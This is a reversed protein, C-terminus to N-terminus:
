LTAGRYITDIENVGVVRDGQLSTMADGLVYM